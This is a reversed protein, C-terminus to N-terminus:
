EDQDGQGPTRDYSGSDTSRSAIVRATDECSIRSVDHGLGCNPLAATLLKDIASEFAPLHEARYGPHRTHDAWIVRLENRAISLAVREPGALEIEGSV